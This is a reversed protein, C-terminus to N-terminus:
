AFIGWGWRSYFFNQLYSFSFLFECVFGSPSFPWIFSYFSISHNIYDMIEKKWSSRKIWKTKLVWLLIILKIHRRLKLLSTKSLFLKRNFIHGFGVNKLEFKSQLISSSNSYSISNKDNKMDASFQHVVFFFYKFKNILIFYEDRMRQLIKLMYIKRVFSHFRWQFYYRIQQFKSVKKVFKFDVKL